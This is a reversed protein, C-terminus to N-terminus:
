LWDDKKRKNREGLYDNGKFPRNYADFWERFFNADRRARANEIKKIEREDKALLDLWIRKDKIENRM